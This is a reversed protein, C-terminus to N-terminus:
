LEPSVHCPIYEVADTISELFPEDFGVRSYYLAGINSHLIMVYLIGELIFRVGGM